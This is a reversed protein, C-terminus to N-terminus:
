CLAQQSMHEWVTGSLGKLCESEPNFKELVTVQGLTRLASTSLKGPSAERGVGGEGVDGKNANLM